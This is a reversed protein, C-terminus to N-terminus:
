LRIVKGGLIKMKGSKTTILFRYFYLGPPLRAGSDATGDWLMGDYRNGAPKITRRMTRVLQGSGTFLQLTVDLEQGQQNHTFFFRTQDSFPNPFNGSEQVALTTTKVVVFRLTATGSNNYTDWAKITLVHPGEPLDYLPFRITGAKFDNLSAVYFDNLIFYQASSDLIAVMDHGIGYGSTNIGSNDALKVLLVPDPGTIGGNRFLETDLFAQISPGTTDIPAQTNMGGVQYKNFYGGADAQEAAAYYSIKGAGPKYDIDRPVIFTFSFQGNQVRQQGKFLIERQVKYDAPGSGPDNGRTRLSVPKDYVTIDMTGNFDPLPQGQADAIHGKVVYRGLAKLTDTVTNVDAGNISDTVVQHRPFALTLAPDGLLQFKRNNPIDNYTNYTLNKALMAAEGLSPMRGDALPAFAMKMYNANMVRNSYAFVARTTTMLAIAGGSPRLLIEEGLSLIEPNDFPAFDCTGTIILPLKHANDWENVADADVVVEEALRSYSGHGTYNWVLNGNYMQRKIESNVAPYRSGGAAPVKPYADLYIKDTNGQPWSQQAAASVEEADQLHLNNDGDDAVFTLRNRWPGFNGPMHYGTIKDAVQGAQAATQVPLRGIAIDLLNRTNNDTINDTDDLFGYFDDSAYSNIFDLSADSQWTPVLNTNNKVRHKYDYSADGMLLLYRPAPGGGRARDYHMKVFDRIAAPDPSGSGFENYIEQVPTIKVQLGNNSTHYAALRAAQAQLAPVTIILMDAPGGGHLDQNPVTGASAPQLAQAATFAVYERLVSVDRTFSLRNGNLQTKLQVPHLADTIDWVQTQANANDLIFRAAGSMGAGAADRFFLPQGAPLTLPCRAKVELYDLWGQENSGGPTFQLGVEVVPSSVGATVTGATATAFAEFINGSVPPLYLSGAAAQNVTIDFRSTGGSRAAVRAQVQVSAGPQVAPLTFAYSRVAPTGATNGFVHGYWQKGTNLFNLSDKEYFAHYDFATVDATAPPENMDLPIRRGNPLITLFYWSTDSYVNYSHSFSRTAAQYQWGHPGPAYFLLYDSGNLQGDGGDAVALAVERLDDYRPASNAEPLMQGGNGYIRVASAALSSTNIGIANLQAVDIKYIGQQPVALRYWSGSALVSHPTYTRQGLVQICCVLLLPLLRFLKM